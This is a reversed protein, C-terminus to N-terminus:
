LSELIKKLVTQASVVRNAAEPIVLSRPSDIIEDTVIMNRRVPLCHMFCADNTVAMQRRGVTWSPNTSLIQGYHSVSSWNKAYVFDAGEFAKMQDYEVRAGGVFQSELEYGEPHTIVLEM